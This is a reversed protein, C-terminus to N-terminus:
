RVVVFCAQGASLLADCAAAAGERTGFAGAQVRYFVSREGLKAEEVALKLPKLVEPHRDQLRQWESVVKSGDTVAAVQVLISGAPPNWAEAVFAAAAVQTETQSAPQADTRIQTRTQTEAQAEVAPEAAAPAAEAPADSAIPPFKPPPPLRSERRPAPAEAAAADGAPLAEASVEAVPAAAVQPPAPQGAAAARERARQRTLEAETPARTDELASEFTLRQESYGPGVDSAVLGEAMQRRDVAAPAAEFDLDRSWAQPESPQQPPPTRAAEPVLPPDSEPPPGVEIACAALLLCAAAAIAGLGVRRAGRRIGTSASITLSDARKM